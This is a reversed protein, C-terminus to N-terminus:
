EFPHDRSAGGLEGFSHALELQEEGVDLLAEHHDIAVALHRLFAGLDEAL